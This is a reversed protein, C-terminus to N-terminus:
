SISGPPDPSRPRSRAPRRMITCTSAPAGITADPFPYGPDPQAPNGCPAHLRGMSHGLEHAVTNLSGSKVMMTHTGPGVDLPDAPVYAFGSFRSGYAVIGVYYATSGEVLRVLSLSELMREWSAVEGNAGTVNVSIPAGVTADISSM